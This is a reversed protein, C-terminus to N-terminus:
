FGSCDKPTNSSLQGIIQRRFGKVLKFGSSYVQRSYQAEQLRYQSPFASVKDNEISKILTFLHLELLNYIDETTQQM